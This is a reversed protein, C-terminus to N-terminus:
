DEDEPPIYKFNDGYNRPKLKRVAEAQVIYYLGNSEAYNEADEMTNFKLRVQGLTDECATWGMLPEPCRASKSEYELIWPKTKARGSQMATKSPKYIRAKM